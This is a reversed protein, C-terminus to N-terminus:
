RWRAVCVTVINIDDYKCSNLSTLQLANDIDAHLRHALEPKAHMQLSFYPEICLPVRAIRERNTHFHLM